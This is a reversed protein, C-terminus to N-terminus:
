LPAIYDATDRTLRKDQPWVRGGGDQVTSRLALKTRSLLSLTSSMAARVEHEPQLPVDVQLLDGSYSTM